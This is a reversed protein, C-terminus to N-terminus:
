AAPKVTQLVKLRKAVNAVNALAIFIGGIKPVFASLSVIPCAALLEESANWGDNRGSLPLTPLVLLCCQGSCLRHDGSRFLM